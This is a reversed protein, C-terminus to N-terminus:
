KKPCMLLGVVTKMDVALHVHSLEMNEEILVSYQFNYYGATLCNQGIMYKKRKRWFGFRKILINKSDSLYTYRLKSKM